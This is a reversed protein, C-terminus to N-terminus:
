CCEPVHIGIGDEPFLWCIGFHANCLRCSALCNHQSKLRARKKEGVRFRSPRYVSVCMENALLMSFDDLAFRDWQAESPCPADEDVHWANSARCAFLNAWSRRQMNPWAVM